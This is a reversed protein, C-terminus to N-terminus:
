KETKFVKLVLMLIRKQINLLLTRVLDDRWPFATEILFIGWLLVWSLVRDQHPRATSIRLIVILSFTCIFSVLWSFLRLLCIRWFALYILLLQNLINLFQYLVIILMESFVLFLFLHYWVKFSTLSKWKLEEKSRWYCYSSLCPARPLM